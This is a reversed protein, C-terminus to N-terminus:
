GARKNRMESQIPNAQSQPPPMNGIADWAVKLELMLGHVEDLIGADNKLNALLLRDSMYEYLKDLNEALEAGAKHDLSDRLGGIIAITSSLTEGKMKANKNNIFMKAKVIRSLAGEMLMQILRHSSADQIDTNVNLESYKRIGDLVKLNAHTM